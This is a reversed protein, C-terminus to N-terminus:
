QLTTAFSYTAGYFRSVVSKMRVLVKMGRLVTDDAIM